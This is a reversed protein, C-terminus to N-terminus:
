DKLAVRSVEECFLIDEHLGGVQHQTQRGGGPLEPWSKAGMGRLRVPADVPVAPLVDAGEGGTCWM